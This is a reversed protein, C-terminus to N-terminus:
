FFEFNFVFFWQGRFKNIWCSGKTSLDLTFKTSFRDLLLCNFSLFFLDYELDSNIYSLIVHFFSIFQLLDLCVTTTRPVEVHFCDRLFDSFWIFSWFITRSVNSKGSSFFFCKLYGLNYSFFYIDVRSITRSVNSKGSFFQPRIYVNSSDWAIMPKREDGTSFNWAAKWHESPEKTNGNWVVKETGSPLLSLFSYHKFNSRLSACSLWCLCIYNRLFGIYSTQWM